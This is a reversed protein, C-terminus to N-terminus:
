TRRAVSAREVLHSPIVIKVNQHAASDNIQDILLQAATEGINYTPISVTTLPVALTRCYEINDFGVVSVDTPVCLNMEHLANILGIAVLDNYCFVASPFDHANSFLRLGAQYGDDMYSGVRHIDDARIVLHREAFAQRFGELREEAHVSHAPGPFYAIRRHGMDLLYAAAQRAACINDIDVISTQFNKVASLMVFPRKERILDSLYTFDVDDGQLPSIILGEVQQNILTYISQRERVPSLESSGLLVTYDLQSCKDFIGKMIKAFFPNDIEKIILGISKTKSTSLSRALQNPRYNLRQVQELVKDRTERSFGPRNNLVSSVTAKSVGALRAIDKITVSM